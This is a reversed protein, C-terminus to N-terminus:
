CKKKAELTISGARRGAATIAFKRRRRLIVRAASMLHLLEILHHTGAASASAERPREHNEGAAGSM